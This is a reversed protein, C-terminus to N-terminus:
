KSKRRSKAALPPLLTVLLKDILSTAATNIDRPRGYMLWTIIMQNTSGVFTTALEYRNFGATSQWTSKGSGLLEVIISSYEDLGKRVRAEAVLVSPWVELYLTRAWEPNRRAFDTSLWLYFRLRERAGEITRARDAYEGFFEGIKILPVAYALDEKSAYYEYISSMPMGAEAAVDSIRARAIGDRAFVCLAAQLIERQRRRSRDQKHAPDAKRWRHALDDLFDDWSPGDATLRRTEQM